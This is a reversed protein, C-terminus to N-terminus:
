IVLQDGGIIVRSVAAGSDHFAFAQYNDGDAQGAGALRAEVLLKQGVGDAATLIEQFPALLDFSQDFFGDAGASNGIDVPRVQVRLLARM